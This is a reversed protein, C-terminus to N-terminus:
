YGIRDWFDCTTKLYADEIQLPNQFYLYKEDGTTFRPWAISVPLPENPDQSTAFNAWFSAMSQSLRRGTDTFNVWASEFLYPLEAGHCVHGNCFTENGWGDFDLPYGFVYMYSAAKRAFQRISCAFVWETAIRALLPRNDTTSIPPYRELVLLGKQLFAGFVVEAYTTPSVPKTWGEYIFFQAEETLSGIILQKLPFSTNQVLDLPQGRVIDNDIVPVWPEFFLLLKFSTLKKNVIAQAVVIDQFSAARLCNLDGVPCKM